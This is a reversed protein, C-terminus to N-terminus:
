WHPRFETRLAGMLFVPGTDRIPAKNYPQRVAPTLPRRPQHSRLSNQVRSWSVDRALGVESFQISFFSNHGTGIWVLAVFHQQNSPQQGGLRNAPLKNAGKPMFSPIVARPASAAYRGDVSLPRHSRQFIHGLSVVDSWRVLDQPPM